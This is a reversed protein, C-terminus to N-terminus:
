RSSARTSRRTSSRRRRRSHGAAGGRRGDGRWNSFTSTSDVDDDLLWDDTKMVWPSHITFLADVTTATATSASPSAGRAIACAFTSPTLPEEVSLTVAVTSAMSRALRISVTFPGSPFTTEKRTLSATFRRGSTLTPSLIVAVYVCVTLKLTRAAPAGAATAPPAATAAPGPALGDPVAVEAVVTVTTIVAMSLVASDTM